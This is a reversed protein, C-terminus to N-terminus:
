GKFRRRDERACAKALRKIWRAGGEPSKRLRDQESTQVRPLLGTSSLEPTLRRREGEPRFWPSWILPPSDRAAAPSEHNESPGRIKRRDNNERSVITDLTSFSPPNTSNEFEVANVGNEGPLKM